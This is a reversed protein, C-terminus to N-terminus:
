QFVWFQSHPPQPFSFWVVVKTKADQQFVKLFCYLGPTTFVCGEKWFLRNSAHVSSCIPRFPHAALPSLSTLCLNSCRGRGAGSHRVRPPVKGALVM